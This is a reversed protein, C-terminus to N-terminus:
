LLQLMNIQLPLHLTPMTQQDHLKHTLQWFLTKGDQPMTWNNILIKRWNTDTFCQLHESIQSFPRVVVPIQTAGFQGYHMDCLISEVASGFALHSQSCRTMKIGNHSLSQIWSSLARICTSRHTYERTVINILGCSMSYTSAIRNQNSIGSRQFPKRTLNGFEFWGRFIDVSLSSM